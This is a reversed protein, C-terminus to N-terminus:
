EKNTFEAMWKARQADMEERMLDYKSRLDTLGEARLGAALQRLVSPLLEALAELEEVRKPRFDLIPM